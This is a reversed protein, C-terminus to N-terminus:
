ETETLPLLFLVTFTHDDWSIDMSGGYSSCVSRMSAIGVGTRGKRKTSLLEGGSREVRGDFSNRILISLLSPESQSIISIAPQDQVTECGRLANDLANGLLVCLDADHIGPSHITGGVHFAIGREQAQQMYHYLVGDAALNGTFPISGRSGTRGLLETCYDRLGEVDDVDLYRHIAAVHHKFDHSAKRAEEVRVKLEAYHVRQGALQQELIRHAHIRQHDKQISTCLLLIVGMYLCNALLQRLNGADHGAGLALVKIAFFAVPILFVTDWYEGGTLQLLPEMTDCLLNRLPLFTVALLLSYLVLVVFLFTQESYGPLLGIVFYPVSLILYHITIVVGFAFLHERVRGRIVLMNVATMGLSYFICGYRLFTFAAQPGWFYLGVALAAANVATLLGYVTGLLRKQARTVLGAFPAYRLMVGICMCLSLLVATAIDWM